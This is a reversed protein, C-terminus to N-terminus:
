STGTSSVTATVDDAAPARSAAMEVSTCAAVAPLGVCALLTDPMTRLRSSLKSRDAADVAPPLLWLVSAVICDAHPPTTPTTSPRVLVSAAAYLQSPLAALVLPPLRRSCPPAPAEGEGHAAGLGTASEVIRDRMVVTGAPDDAPASPSTRMSTTTSTG